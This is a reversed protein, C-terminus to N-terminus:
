RKILYGDENRILLAAKTADFPPLTLPLVYEGEALLIGMTVGPKTDLTKATEKLTKEEKFTIWTKGDAVVTASLPTLRIGFRSHPTDKRDTSGLLIHPPYKYFSENGTQQFTLTKLRRVQLAIHEPLLLLLSYEDM